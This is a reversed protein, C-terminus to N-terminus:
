WIAITFIPSILPLTCLFSVVAGVLSLVRTFGAKEDRGIALVLIGFLVPVWIALSLYPPLTSITSQMM